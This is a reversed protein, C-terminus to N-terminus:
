SINRTRASPKAPRALRSNNSVHKLFEHLSVDPKAWWPEWADVRQAQEEPAAPFDYPKSCDFWPLSLGEEHMRRLFARLRDADDGM